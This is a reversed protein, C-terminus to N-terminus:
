IYSIGSITDDPLILKPIMFEDRFWSLEDLEDLVQAFERSTWEISKSSALSLLVDKPTGKPDM